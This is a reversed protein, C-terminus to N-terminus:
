QEREARLEDALRAMKQPSGAADRFTTLDARLNDLREILCDAVYRAAATRDGADPRAATQTMDAGKDM